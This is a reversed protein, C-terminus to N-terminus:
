KIKNRTIEKLFIDKSSLGETEKSLLFNYKYNDYLLLNPSKLIIDAPSSFNDVNYISAKLYDALSKIARLRGNPYLKEMENTYVFICPKYNLVAYSLSTSHHAIVFEADKVLEATRLRSIKRNEFWNTNPNTKPHAAIIVNIGFKKELIAFFGNLSKYYDRPNVTQTGERKFDSQFPLNIDLFAAYKGNVPPLKANKTRIYHEYDSSNFPIRKKVFANVTNPSSGVSFVVDAKILRLKRYLYIGIVEYLLKMFQYPQSTLKIIIRRWKPASVIPMMGENVFVLRCKQKTLTRFLLRSKWNFTILAVYTADINEKSKVLQEYESQSRIIRHYDADLEGYDKYNGVTFTGVDWFEVEFGNKILHDIFYDRAYRDTLTSWSIYIVKSNM